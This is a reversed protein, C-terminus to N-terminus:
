NYCLCEQVTGFEELRRKLARKHEEQANAYWDEPKLNSTIYITKPAWWGFSGKIPVSMPYRDLLRLLYSLKFWSGDFDDFLVAPQGDYGDFWRDGPHVWLKDIDAYEWVRRTKGTGTKGWLTWIEPPGDRTPRFLGRVKSIGNSYRLIASPHSEAIERMSKGSKCAEYVERLDNRAGKGRPLDGYEIFSGDKKCYDAAQQPSGKASEIHSRESIFSKARGFSKRSKFAVYGQLHQTGTEGTERGIVIYVVGHQEDKCKEVLDEGENPEPNNITFCWHKAQVSPM